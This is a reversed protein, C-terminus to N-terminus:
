EPIKEFDGAVVLHLKEPHLRERIVQNVQDKTVARVRSPFEDLYEPGFGYKEAYSLSFAVGANTGLRVQYNGAFFNKQVLVEEDTIGERRYREIEERTSRMAQVVNKPACAVDVMWAGDLFDSWLYRSYLTYSLGEKDRVRKGIRSTLSSQGLAANAVIAAEWEPDTRRLGSAQGLVFDVNAKGRMTELGREPTNVSVRPLDYSPRAGAPVAGFLSDVLTAVREPDVDGVVSLIMGSGVYRNRHFARLDAVRARDLSALMSDREPARFPHGPPYVLRSLRERARLGTNEYGRLLDARLESKAKTLEEEPFSPNLIEDALTSLLLRTDRSLASGTIIAESLDAGITLDAGAGELAAAITRKDRTKTGRSLMMATLQPVAGPAEQRGALVLGHLAVTPVSHNPLVNLVIGNRLTRRHTRDAFRASSAASAAASPVADAAEFIAGAADEIAGATGDHAGGAGPKKSKPAPTNKGSASGTSAKSPAAAKAPPPADKKVPVFWGVTARDPQIYTRAVRQVDERTVRNVGDIYGVFWKWNASAVAEGLAQALEYTGDRSRITTVELQRKARDLEEQTVGKEGIEHLAAKIAAEVKEHSVGRAATAGATIVYPDLLTYNSSTVDTALGTEVLAQHLRSSVGTALLTSLVDLPLFDPHLSGPRLYSIQVIGLEGPRKVQVRREGEQPPEVTIVNPIPKSSRPLSGFERDFLRLAKATDFDGVLVAEANDPWFYNKYHERLQETPVNELDSRYGITNWHYPHAVIAAATVAKDLARYPSNEGIEFENIVVSMEPKREEDLILARAMRDAEIRMALDLKDSPLTSYGTMRDYWTTMNTSGYDAGAEYLVEQFTKKGNAKGFNKTSKNFLMHELLHASGTNGPAENRSGVHYVVLFTAVPAARNPAVLITMGNSKLRYQTIGALSDLREVNAPIRDPRAAERRSSPRTSERPQAESLAPLLLGWSLLAAM